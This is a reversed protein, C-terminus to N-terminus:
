PEDDQEETAEGREMVTKEGNYVFFKDLARLIEDDEEEGDNDVALVSRMDQGSRVKKQLNKRDEAAKKEVTDEAKEQPAEFVKDLGSLEESSDDTKLADNEPVSKTRVDSNVEANVEASKEIETTVEKAAALETQSSQTDKDSDHKGNKGNKSHKQNKGSQKRRKAIGEREQFERWDFVAEVSAIAVEIMSDDPEKTTLGQLWFGPKSLFNIVKNDSSGAVRIFEYSIGAILPILVIRLVYRLWVTEVRIFMFMIFSVLMVVLLFSTGCRKHCRSQRRVNAVTLEEGNEVCNICKHEAGHYMFVRKIDNLKSILAVYVVFMALRLVGEIVLQLTESQVVKGLLSSIFLPFLVFIVIALAVSLFVVGIDMLAETAKSHEKKEGEDEEYFSSSWTLTRIGLVLSEGFAAVGRFIPLRFLGCKEKLGHFEEKKVEIEQDPKRVAVAYCDKNKMMVGELVAQGGIGSPKM